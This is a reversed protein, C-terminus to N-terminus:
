YYFINVENQLKDFEKDKNLFFDELENVRDQKEADSKRFKEMDGQSENALKKVKELEEELEEIQFHISDWIVYLISFSVFLSTLSM